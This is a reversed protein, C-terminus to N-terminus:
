DPAAAAGTAFYVRGRADIMILCFIRDSLDNRLILSLIEFQRRLSEMAVNHHACTLPASSGNTSLLYVREGVARSLELGRADELEEGVQLVPDM